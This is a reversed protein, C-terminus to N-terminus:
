RQTRTHQLCPAFFSLGPGPGPCYLTVPSLALPLHTCSYSYPHSNCAAQDRWGLLLGMAGGGVDGWALVAGRGRGQMRPRLIRGRVGGGRRAVVVGVGVLGRGLISKAELHLM